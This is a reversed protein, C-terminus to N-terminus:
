LMGAQAMSYHGDGVIVHDLVRTDILALSEKIKQTIRLDSQSPRVVGSPHNHVLIVAAANAQMVERVVERPHVSAGDITGRFLEVYRILRHRNDLLLVAFIEYPRSALQLRLYHITEELSCMVTGDKDGRL